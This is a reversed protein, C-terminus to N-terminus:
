CDLEDIAQFYQSLVSQWSLKNQAFRLAERAMEQQTNQCTLIEKLAGAIERASGQPVVLGTKEHLLMESSGGADTVVVPVGFGQAECISRGMTETHTYTFDGHTRQVDKSTSLYVDAVKYYKEIEAPDVKGIFTCYDELNLNALQALLSAKQDGEGVLVLLPNLGESVLIALADLADSLGKFDVLRGCSLIIPRNQPLGLLSPQVREESVDCGGKVVQLVERTVGVEEAKRLSYNSNLFLRDLASLAKGLEARGGQNKQMFSLDNGGSRAVQRYGASKLEKFFPYLDLTNHYIVTEQPTVSVEGLVKQFLAINKLQKKPVLRAKFGAKGYRLSLFRKFLIKKKTATLVAWEKESQMALRSILHFANTEIGGVHYPPLTQSYVIVNNISM